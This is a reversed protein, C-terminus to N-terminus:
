QAVTEAHLARRTASGSLVGVWDSRSVAVARRSASPDGHSLSVAFQRSAAGVYRSQALARLSPWPPNTALQSAQVVACAYRTAM